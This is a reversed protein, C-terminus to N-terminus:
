ATTSGGHRGNSSNKELADVDEKRLGNIRQAADFIRDLVAGSKMGLAAIQEPGFLPLGAEDVMCAACLRARINVMRDEKHEPLSTEWADREAGSLVRVKVQAGAGWEPVDVFVAEIDNARLIEEASLLSM